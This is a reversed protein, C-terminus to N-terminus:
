TFVDVTLAGLAMVASFGNFAMGFPQRLSIQMNIGEWANGAM